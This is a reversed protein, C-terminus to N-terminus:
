WARYVIDCGLGIILGGYLVSFTYKWFSVQYTKFTVLRKKEGKKRKEKKKLKTKCKFTSLDFMRVHASGYYIM